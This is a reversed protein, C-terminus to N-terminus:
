RNKEENLQEAFFMRRLAADGIAIRSNMKHLEDVYANAIEAARNPDEDKVSISILGGKEVVFKSNGELIARATSMKAAKYVKQLNFRKILADELTVSQFLGLFLDNPDRQQMSGGLGTVAALGGLQSVLAAGSQGQQPPMILAKSTFSPHVFMVVIGAILVGLITTLFISGKREALVILLDFLDFEIGSQLTSDLQSTYEETIPTM